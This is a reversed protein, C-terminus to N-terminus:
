VSAKAFNEPAPAMAPESAKKLRRETRRVWDGIALGVIEEVKLGSERSLAELSAAISPAVQGKIAVLEPAKRLGLSELVTSRELTM